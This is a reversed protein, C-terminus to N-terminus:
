PRDGSLVQNIKFRTACEFHTIKGDQTKATITQYGGSLIIEAFRASPDVKRIATEEILDIEGGSDFTIKLSKIGDKRIHELVRAEKPTLLFLQDELVKLDMNGVSDAILETLSISIFSKVIFDPLNVLNRYEQFAAMKLPIFDGARNLLIMWHNRLMIADLLIFFIWPHKDQKMAEITEPDLVPMGIGHNEEQALENVVKQVMAEQYLEWSSIEAWIQAKLARIIELSIEFDRLRGIIRIWIVELYNMRRWKGEEFTGSLLKENKWHTM